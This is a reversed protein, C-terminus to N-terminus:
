HVTIGKRGRLKQSKGRTTWNSQGSSKSSVERGGRKVTRGIDDISM